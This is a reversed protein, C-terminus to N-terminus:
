KLLTVRTQRLLEGARTRVLYIGAPLRAGQADAGDWAVTRSGRPFWGASLTRVRRGSLDLIEIEQQGDRPSAIALSVAGRSPNPQATVRLAAVPDDGVGLAGGIAITADATYVPTVLIGDRAFRCRRFHLNTVQPTNSVQFHLRYVQGPGTLFVQNCTLSLAIDISDAAFQFFPFTSGCAASCTGTMLCGQRWSSTEPILTLVAPDYTVIADFGNFESGAETVDMDIIFNGGPAVNNVVSPVFGMHVGQARAPVALLGAAAALVMSFALTRSAQLM